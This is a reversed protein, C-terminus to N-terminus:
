TPINLVKVVGVVLSRGLLVVPVTAEVSNPTVSIEFVEVRGVVVSTVLSFGLVSFMEVTGVTSVVVPSDEVYTPGNRVVIVDVALSLGLLVAIVINSNVSTEVSEVMGVVVSIVLSCGLMAFMVTAGVTNVVVIGGEVSTSGNLVCAVVTALSLGLVVAIVIVKGTYSTVSTVM